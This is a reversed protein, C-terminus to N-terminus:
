DVGLSDFYLAARTPLILGGVVRLLGAGVLERIAREIADEAAFDERGYNMALSLEAFTLHAHHQDFVFALIATKVAADEIAPSDGGERCHTPNENAM